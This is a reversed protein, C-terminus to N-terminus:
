EQERSRPQFIVTGDVKVPEFSDEIGVATETAGLLLSGGPSLAKAMRGLVARKTSTEFYYLVNRLLILDFSGLVPWPEILNLTAFRIRARLEPKVEWQLGRREFYRLLCQAPLGRNIELQSYRGAVARSVMETSLDTAYIFISWTDLLRFSEKFMMALSYAEQGSACGACWIRLKAESRHREVLQPIVTKRLAEFVNMDRFFLTENTTMAEVVEQRLLRSPEVRLASVLNQLSSYGRKEALPALRSAVLYEKGQELVIAAKERVLTCIFDYDTRSLEM